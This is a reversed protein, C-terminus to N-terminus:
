SLSLGLSVPVARRGATGPFVPTLGRGYGSDVPRSDGLPLITTPTETVHVWGDGVGLPCRMAAKDFVGLPFRGIWVTGRPTRSM